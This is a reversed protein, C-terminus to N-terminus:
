STRSGAEAIGGDALVVIRDARRFSSFHHSIIV